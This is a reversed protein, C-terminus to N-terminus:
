YGTWPNVPNLLPQKRLFRPVNENLFFDTSEINSTTTLDMNHPSLLVNDLSWLQSTSPLPEMSFVDLAAGKLRGGPQLERIMADDDIIPGRGVNIIVAGQKMHSFAVSDMMGRTQDTLPASVLIYDSQSLLPYLSHANGQDLFFMEDVLADDPINKKERKLAVVRMGYAKALKASAQGIDGYGVIGLTANRIELIPYKHWLKAQKQQSLRPLDKAFYSIAMM